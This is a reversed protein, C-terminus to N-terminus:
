RKLNFISNTGNQLKKLAHDFVISKAFTINVLSINFFKPRLNFEKGSFHLGKAKTNHVIDYDINFYLVFMNKTYLYYQMFTGSTELWKNTIAGPIYPYNHKSMSFQIFYDVMLNWSQSFVVPAWTSMIPVFFSCNKKIAKNLCKEPAFYPCNDNKLLIKLKHGIGFITSSNQSNVFAIAKKTVKYFDQSLLLDDELITFPVDFNYKRMWQNRLGINIKQFFIDIKGHNWKITDLFQRTSNDIYNSGPIADVYVEINVTDNLFDVASLSHFLRELSMKRNM